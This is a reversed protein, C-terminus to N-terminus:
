VVDSTRHPEYRQSVSSGGVSEGLDDRFLGYWPTKMNDPGSLPLKIVSFDFANRIFESIQNPSIVSSKNTIM